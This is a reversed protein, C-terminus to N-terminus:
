TLCVNQLIQSGWLLFMTDIEPFNTPKTLRLYNFLLNYCPHGIVYGVCNTRIATILTKLGYVLSFSGKESHQGKLRTQVYSCIFSAKGTPAVAIIAISPAILLASIILKPMTCYSYLFISFFSFLSRICFLKNAM